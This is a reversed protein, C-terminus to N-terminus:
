RAEGTLPDLDGGIVRGDPLLRVLVSDVSITVAVGTRIAQLRADRLSDRQADRPPPQLSAIGITSLGGIIGLLVLVVLLEILTTGRVLRVPRALHALRVLTIPGVQGDQGGEGGQGRM